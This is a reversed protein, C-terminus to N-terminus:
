RRLLVDSALRAKRLLRNLPGPRRAAQQLRSLARRRLTASRSPATRPVDGFPRWIEDLTYGYAALDEPALARVIRRLSPLRDPTSEPVSASPREPLPSIDLFACVDAFRDPRALLTHTDSRRLFSALARLTDAAEAESQDAGLLDLPHQVVVICPAHPYVKRLFPLLAVYGPTADIFLRRGSASLARGYLHDCYARCAEIYDAEKRPLQDVFLRQAEAALIHDYSAKYVKDYYGLYAMSTLVHCERGLQVDPHASLTAALADYDAGPGGLLFALPVPSM